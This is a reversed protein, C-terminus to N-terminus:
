CHTTRVFAIFRVARGRGVATDFRLYARLFFGLPWGWEPGNHYNWGRAIAPDSSDNSNDYDGRYSYDSPDLTKMGMPSVLVQETIRLAVLAREPNFLEPAVTMAVPVNCRLRYDAFEHDAGSGYVDKYIGRRSVISPNVEFNRDESPEAFNWILFM